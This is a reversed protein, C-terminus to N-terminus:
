EKLYSFDISLQFWSLKFFLAFYRFIKKSKKGKQLWTIHNKMPCRNLCLVQYKIRFPAGYKPKFPSSLITVPKKKNPLLTTPESYRKPKENQESKLKLTWIKWETPLMSHIRFIVNLIQGWKPSSITSWLSFKCIKNSLESVNECIDNLLENWAFYFRRPFFRSGQEGRGHSNRIFVTSYGFKTIFIVIKVIKRMKFYTKEANVQSSTLVSHCWLNMIFFDSLRKKKWRVVSQFTM